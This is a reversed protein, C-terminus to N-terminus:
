SFQYNSIGKLLDNTNGMGGLGLQALYSNDIGSLQGMDGTKGKQDVLQRNILNLFYQNEEPGNGGGYVGQTAINSTLQDPSLNSFQSLSQPLGMAAQQSPKFPPPGKPAGGGSSQPMIAQGASAGLSSGISSGAISGLSADGLFSPLANGAFSGFSDNVLGGVTQGGLGGGLLSGGLSGGAFSGGASLLGAIPNGTEVGTSLGSGIAAGIMPMGVLSGLAAGAIPAIM